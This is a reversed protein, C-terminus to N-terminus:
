VYMDGSAAEVQGDVYGFARGWVYTYGVSNNRSAVVTTESGNKVNSVSGTNSFNSIDNKEEYYVKVKIQHGPQSHTFRGYVKTATIDASISSTAAYCPIVCNALMCIGLITGVLKKTKKSM